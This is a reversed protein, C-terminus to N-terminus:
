SNDDKDLEQDVSSFSLKKLLCDVIDDIGEKRYDLYGIDEHIGLMKTDDLKIPLIFETKRKEAETRMISFEFDTWDKIPYHKSILVVVFKTKPGYINKFYETLKKGWFDHKYFEDYFVKIGKIQLKRALNKAIKRNEGAFSIAIDHEFESSNGLKKINDGISLLPSKYSERIAEKMETATQFRNNPDMRTAKQVIRDLDKSITPNENRPSFPPFKCPDRGTLLFYMTVGVSFIDSQFYSEGKRQEPAVYGPTYLITGKKKRLSAFRMKSCHFGMLKINRGSIMINVPGIGRHIINQNHLYELATLLQECYNRTRNETAPRERFLTKMDKGNIYEIVLYFVNNEEFSAIYKIINPHFLTRLIKAEVKLQEEKISDDIGNYVIHKIAYKNGSQVDVCTYVIDIMGTSIKHGVRYRDNILEGPELKMHESEKYLTFNSTNGYTCM